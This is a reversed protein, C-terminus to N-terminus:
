QGPFFSQRFRLLQSRLEASKAKQTTMEIGARAAKDILAEAVDLDALRTKLDDLTGPPFPNTPDEAM